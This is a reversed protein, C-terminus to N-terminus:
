GGDLIDNGEGGYLHDYGDDGNLNDNGIEGYVTDNGSGGYIVDTGYGGYITDNGNNGHITDNGVGGSLNDASSTGNIVKDEVGDPNGDGDTDPNTPDLEGSLIEIQNVVGDGDFDQDAIFATLELFNSSRLDHEINNVNLYTGSVEVRVVSGDAELTDPGPVRYNYNISSNSQRVEDVYVKYTHLNDDTDSNLGLGQRYENLISYSQGAIVNTANDVVLRVDPACVDIFVADNMMESQEGLLYGQAMEVTYCAGLQAFGTQELAENEEFEFVVTNGAINFTGSVEVGDFSISASSVGVSLPEDFVIRVQDNSNNAVEDFDIETIQPGFVKFEYNLEASRDVAELVGGASDVQISGAGALTSEISFEARGEAFSIQETIQGKITAPGSISLAGNESYPNGAIRNVRNEFQDRVEIAFSHNQKTTLPQISGDLEEGNVNTFVFRRPAAAEVRWLLSTVAVPATSSNADQDYFVGVGAALNLRYDGSVEPVTVTLTNNEGVVDVNVLVQDTGESIEAGEQNELSFGTSDFLVQMSTSSDETYNGVADFVAISLSQTSGAEVYPLKSLVVSAPAGAKLKWDATAAAIM